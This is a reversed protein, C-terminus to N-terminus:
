KPNLSGTVLIDQYFRLSKNLYPDWRVLHVKSKTFNNHRIPQSEVM